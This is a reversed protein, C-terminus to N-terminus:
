YKRIRIKKLEVVVLKGDIDEQEIDHLADILRQNLASIPLDNPFRTLIIGRHSGIPFKLINGFGIDGTLLVAQQAQTFRFVADDAAGRLGHDRIDFVEHGLDALMVGTSRPMDEDIVIRLM